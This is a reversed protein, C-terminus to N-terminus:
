FILCHIKGDSYAGQGGHWNSKPPIGSNQNIVLTVAETDFVSSGVTHFKSSFLETSYFKLLTFKVSLLMSSQKTHTILSKFIKVGNLSEKKQPLKELISKVDRQRKTESLQKKSSENM